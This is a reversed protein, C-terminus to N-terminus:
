QTAHGSAAGEVKPLIVGLQPITESRTAHYSNGRVLSRSMFQRAGIEWVMGRRNASPRTPGAHGGLCGRNTSIFAQVVIRWAARAIRVTCCAEAQDRSQRASICPSTRRGYPVGAVALSSRHYPTLTFVHVPPLINPYAWACVLVLHTGDTGQETRYSPTM